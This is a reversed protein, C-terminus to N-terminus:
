VSHFCSSFVEGVFVKLVRPIVFQVQRVCM